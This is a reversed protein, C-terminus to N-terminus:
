GVMLSLASTDRLCPNALRSSICIPMCVELGRVPTRAGINIHLRWMKVGPCVIVRDLIKADLISAMLDFHSRKEEVAEFVIVM